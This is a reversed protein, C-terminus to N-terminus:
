YEGALLGGTPPKSKRVGLFRANKSLGPLVASSREVSQAYRHHFTLTYNFRRQLGAINVAREEHAQFVGQLALVGATDQVM